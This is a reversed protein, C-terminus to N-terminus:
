KAVYSISKVDIDGSIVSFNINKPHNILETSFQESGNVNITLEDSVWDFDISAPERWLLQTKFYHFSYEGSGTRYSMRILYHGICDNDTM